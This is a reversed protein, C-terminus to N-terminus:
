KKWWGKGSKYSFGWHRLRGNMYRDTDGTRVWLSGGKARNDEIAIKQTQCFQVIDPHLPAPTLTTAIGRQSVISSPPNTVGEPPGAFAAQREAFGPRERTMSNVRFEQNGRLLASLTRQFKDEWREASTDNHLLREIHSEHKLATRDGAIEGALAFPLQDRRFMYCANGTMGFEVVCLNGIMMIFANNEQSGTGCLNLRRGEMKKRIDIFDKSRDARAANGLAFYMDDIKDHYREWYKLRRKDNAGDASLLNFFQQILALKLWGSVMKRVDDSVRRWRADNMSLWPNGWHAVSFDRLGDHLSLNKLQGYRTLLTALCEDRILPYLELIELLSPLLAVFAYDGERTAADIHGAIIRRVLWSTERIELPKRVEDFTALGEDLLLKGYATGPDDGLVDLNAQLTSVWNPQIGPAVTDTAHDHLYTRLREWNETGARSAAEPDYAFYALFLGRYLRRFARPNEKYDNLEALLRTFLRTDEILRSKGPLVEEACGFCVMRAQRMTTLTETRVFDHVAKAIIDKPPMAELNDGLWSTLKGIERDLVKLDSTLARSAGSNIDRLDGILKSLATM